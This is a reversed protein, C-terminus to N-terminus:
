SVLSPINEVAKLHPPTPNWAPDHLQKRQEKDPATSWCYNFENDVGYRLTRGDYDWTNVESMYIDHLRRVVFREELPCDTVISDYLTIM